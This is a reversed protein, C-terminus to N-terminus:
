RFFFFLYGNMEFREQHPHLKNNILTTSFLKEMIVELAKQRRKYLGVPPQLNGAKYKVVCRLAEPKGWTFQEAKDKKRWEKLINIHIPLM